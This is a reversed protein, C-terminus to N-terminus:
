KKKRKNEEAFMNIIINACQGNYKVNYGKPIYELVEPRPGHKTQATPRYRLVRVLDEYRDLDLPLLHHPMTYLHQDQPLVFQGECNIWGGTGRDQIVREYPSQIAKRICELAHLYLQKHDEAIMTEPLDLRPKLWTITPLVRTPEHM